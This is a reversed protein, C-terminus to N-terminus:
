WRFVVRLLTREGHLDAAPVNRGARERPHLRVHLNAQADGGRAIRLPALCPAATEHRILLHRLNGGGPEGARRAPTLRCGRRDLGRVAGTRGLEQADGRRDGAAPFAPAVGDLLGQCAGEGATRGETARARDFGPEPSRDHVGRPVDSATRGAIASAAGATSQLARSARRAARRSVGPRRRAARAAAGRAREGSSRRDRSRPSRRRRQAHAAARDGRREAM